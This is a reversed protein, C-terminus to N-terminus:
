DMHISRVVKVMTYLSGPIRRQNSAVSMLCTLIETWARQQAVKSNEKIKRQKDKSMAQKKYDQSDGHLGGQGRQLIGNLGHLRGVLLNQGHDVLVLRVPAKGDVWEGHQEVADHVWSHHAAEGLILLYYIEQLIFYLM